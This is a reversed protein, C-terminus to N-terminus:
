ETVRRLELGLADAVKAGTRMALDREGSMFRSLMTTSIGADKAIRYLSVGEAQADRVAQKLQQDIM